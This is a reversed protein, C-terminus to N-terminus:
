QKIRPKWRKLLLSNTVVSVSSFAMALGALMPNLLGFAALPIGIINYIFAWFLNQAIKGYTKKSIDISEFILLPDSNMLTIGSAHIAADTGSGMSIGIDAEALAPADNMGDGVMAVKGYKEKLEQIIQLKDAPLVNAYVEDIGLKDAVYKASGYNDGSIMITKIGLSKLKTVALQSNDKIVDRFILVGLLTTQNHEKALLYSVSSGSITVHQIKKQIDGEIQINNEQVIRESGLLLIKGQFEGEIGKGVIAKVNTVKNASINKEKAYNVVAKALPHESGLQLGSSLEIIEKEPAQLAFIQILNPKGQTLTGTKDFAIVKVTHAVELAEADKILIGNKAAVGTGVMISTPTALGLACPCAIILVAIAKFAASQWDGTMLGWAIFTILGVLLVVPVFVASVKDVLKQIPAKKAQATEVLKIIKSLLTESGIATTKVKLLGSGNIAGGTVKENVKKEVPLSEGTILSEDIQSSGELIFGDVPIKEGPRVVVIDGLIVDAIALNVEKNDRIVNANVPRLNELAQIAATTQKKARAELWKGFLVLTIIVASSEFYLHVQGATAQLPNFIIEFLSMGYAASTGIAVLLDMNANKALVAKFGAKYFRLGFYFQVISALAFKVWINLVFHISFLMFFMPIMLPLTLLAAFVLKVTEKNIANDNREEKQGEIFLKAKYGSKEVAGLLTEIKLGATIQVNAKETALNVTATKVGNVALLAKEVHNVCSACTMGEIILVVESNTHNENFNM